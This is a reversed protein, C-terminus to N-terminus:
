LEEGKRLENLLIGAAELSNSQLLFVFLNYLNISSEKEKREFITRSFGFLHAKPFCSLIFLPCPLGFGSWPPSPTLTSSLWTPNSSLPSHPPMVNLLSRDRLDQSPPPLQHQIIAACLHSQYTTQPLWDLWSAVGQRGPERHSVPSLLCSQEEGGEWGSHDMMWWPDWHRPAKCVMGHPCPEM